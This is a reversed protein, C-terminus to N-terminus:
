VLCNTVNRLYLTRVVSEQIEEEAVKPSRILLQTVEKVRFTLDANPHLGFIEPTDIDPFTRIYEHFPGIQESTEIRYKFDNPFKYIAQKPNFNFGEACTANNLWSTVYTKFLRRDLTDTIKGGYQAECVMYQFTPWSINGNYLHKELFLICATLDGNNYEYPIGWGLSGFKRREQVVSHLFCLSFLLQHWEKAQTDVRELRDQDVLVTYSKLVGARLGAPPENTVKTSMQLLGLPFNKDPLATIFLRFAPECGDRLKGM